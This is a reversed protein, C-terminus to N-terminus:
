AVLGLQPMWAFPRDGMSRRTAKWDVEGTAALHRLTAAAWQRSIGRRAANAAENTVAPGDHLDDWVPTFLRRMASGYVGLYRGAEEPISMSRIINSRDPRIGIMEWVAWGAICSPEYRHDLWCEMNFRHNPLREIINALGLIRIQKDTFRVHQM